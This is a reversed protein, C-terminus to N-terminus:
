IAATPPRGPAADTDATMAQSMHQEARRARRIASLMQRQLRDVEDFAADIAERSAERV